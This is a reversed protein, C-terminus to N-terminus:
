RVPYPNLKSTEDILLFRALDDWISRTNNDIVRAYQYNDQTENHAYSDLEPTVDGAYRQTCGGLSLTILATLLLAPLVTRLLTTM